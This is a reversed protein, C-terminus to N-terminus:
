ATREKMESQNKQIYWPILIERKWRDVFDRVKKPIRHFHEKHEGHRENGYGHLQVERPMGQNMRIDLTYYSREPRRYHRVFFITDSGSIHRDSYGGVCHRLVSGERHLDNASKPLLICLDGDTWQLAGYLSIVEAFKGDMAKRREADEMQRQEEQMRVYRDHTEALNRPWLEEQTLERPAFLQVAMRRTDLLYQIDRLRLNQKAVYRALKPLDAPTQKMVRLCADMGSYGTEAWVELFDMLPLRGGIRRYGNFADLVDAKLEYRSKRLQRFEEKTLRLMEHPRTKKLDLYKEMESEIGYSFSNAKKFIEAVLKAQGAKVVNEICRHRRWFKLYRVLGFGGGGIFETLGTKEGTMGELDPINEDWLVAGVKKNNISRWDPYCSDHTDDCRSTQRWASISHYGFQSRQVHTYRVLGGNETLVYADMPEAGVYDIGTEDIVRYVMWYLIATYGEINQVTQVMCRKTRGGRISRSHIVEVEHLCMPCILKEGAFAEEVCIHSLFTEEGYPEGPELTYPMSDEGVALRIADHGRVKQTIFSDHCNTCTCYAAWEHRRPKFSNYEMIEELDPFIPVREGRFILFEGGLEEPCNKLTWSVLGAPPKEPLRHRMWEREM